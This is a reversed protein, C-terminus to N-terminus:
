LKPKRLSCNIMRNFRKLENTEKEGLTTSWLLMQNLDYKLEKLDGVLEKVRKEALGGRKTEVM